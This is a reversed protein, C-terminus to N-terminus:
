NVKKKFVYYGIISIINLLFLISISILLDKFFITKNLQLKYILHYSKYFLMYEGADKIFENTDNSFDISTSAKEVESLAWYGFKVKKHLSVFDFGDPYYKSPGEFVIPIQNILNPLRHIFDDESKFPFKFGVHSFYFIFQSYSNNSIQTKTVFASCKIVASFNYKKAKDILDTNDIYGNFINNQKTFKGDPLKVVYNPINTNLYFGNESSETFNDVDGYSSSIINEAIKYQSNIKNTFYFILLIGLILNIVSLIFVFKIKTSMLPYIQFNISLYVFHNVEIANKFHIFVEAGLPHV